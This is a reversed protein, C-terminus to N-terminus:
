KGIERIRDAARRGIGVSETKMRKYNEGKRM